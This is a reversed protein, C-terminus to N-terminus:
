VANFFSKISPVMISGTTQTKIIKKRPVPVAAYSHKRKEGSTSESFAGTLVAGSPHVTASPARPIPVPVVRGPGLIKRRVAPQQAGNPHVSSHSFISSKSGSSPVAPSDERGPAAFAALTHAFDPSEAVIDTNYRSKKTTATPGQQLARQRLHHQVSGHHEHDQQRVDTAPSLLLQLRSPSTPAEDCASSVGCRFSQLDLRAHKRSPVPSATLDVVDNEVMMADGLTQGPGVATSATSAPKVVLPSDLVDYISMPEDRGAQVHHSDSEMMSICASSTSITNALNQPVSDVGAGDADDLASDECLDYVTQMDDTSSLVAPAIKTASLFEFSDFRHSQIRGQQQSQGQSQQIQGHVYVTSASSSANHTQVSNSTTHSIVHQQSLKSQLFYGSSTKGAVLPKTPEVRAANYPHQQSPRSTSGLMFSSIANMSVSGSNSAISNTSSTSPKTHHSSGSYTHARNSTFKNQATVGLANVLTRRMYWSSSTGSTRGGDAEWPYRPVIEQHDKISYCGKCVDRINIVSADTVSSDDSSMSTNCSAAGDKKSLSLVESADAGLKFLETDTIFPGSLTTSLEGRMEPATFHAICESYPNYVPHYFFLQEARLIRPLYSDAVRKNTLKFYDCIKKLRQDSPTDKFRM